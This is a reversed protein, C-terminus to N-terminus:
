IKNIILLTRTPRGIVHHVAIQVFADVTLLKLNIGLSNRSTNRFEIFTLILLIDTGDNLNFNQSHIRIFKEKMNINRSCFFKLRLTKYRVFSFKTDRQQWKNPEKVLCYNIAIFLFPEHYCRSFIAQLNAVFPKNFSGLIKDNTFKYKKIDQFMRIQQYDLSGMSRMYDFSQM